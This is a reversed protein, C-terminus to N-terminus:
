AGEAPDPVALRVLDAPAFRATTAHGDLHVTVTEAFVQLVVGEGRPTSVRDGKRIPPVTPARLTEAPGSLPGREALPAVTELPTATTVGKPTEVEEPAIGATGDGSSASLPDPISDKAGKAQLPLWYWAGSGGAGGRREAEIGLRAKARKLTTESIGADKAEAYLELALRPGSALAATLFDVADDQAPTAAPGAPPRVLDDATVPVPGHWATRGVGLPGASELHYGLTPAFSAINCKAVALARRDGTPDDPVKGALLVLRALGSFAISGGGRYLASGGTGKNLHRVLVVAVGAREAAEALPALGGRVDSDRHSNIDGLYATVPDFVLLRAGIRDCEGVILAVDDPLVPLRGAGNPTPIVGVVSVRSVDAGAAELRPRITTAVDDEATVIVVGGRASAPVLAGDPWPVGATVCAALFSYITSKGTGPDGDLLHVKGASLRGPWMWRVPEPEVDAVCVGLPASGPAFPEARQRDNRTARPRDARSPRRKPPTWGAAKAMYVLTGPTIEGSRSRLVQRYEGPKEEGITEVLLREARGVDGGCAALVSASLPSWDEYELRGSAAIPSLLSRIKNDSWDEGTDAEGATPALAALDELQRRSVVPRDGARVWEPVSLFAARRHLREATDDGKRAWTGPVKTIRSANGVTTDVHVADDSFRADLAQLVRAVLGGDDAPLDVPVYLHAGNGSDTVVPAPWGRSQLHRAVARAREVAEAKEAETASTRPPRVPDVDIDLLARRATEDDSTTGGRVAPALRNLGRARLEPPAPNVTAFVGFAGRDSAELVDAAFTDGDDYYGSWTRTKDGAPLFARVEVLGGGEGGRTPVSLIDFFLRAADRPDTPVSM